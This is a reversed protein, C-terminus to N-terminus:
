SLACLDRQPQSQANRTIRRASLSPVGVFMFISVILVVGFGGEFPVNAAAIEATPLTRAAAVHQRGTSGNTSAAPVAPVAVNREDKM